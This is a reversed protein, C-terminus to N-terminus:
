SRSSPPLPLEFWFCAGGGRRNYAGVRGGHAEIISKVIALGLGLGDKGSTIASEARHFPRFLPDAGGPPLGPGRDAVSVRVFDGRQSLSVDIDTDRPAYKNANLVLNVLAQGVRRSDAAVLASDEAPRLDHVHPRQQRQSLLPEVVLLVEHVVDALQVPQLHLRLRGDRIAAACLLNEILGELWLARCRIAVVMERIQARDLQEFDDVLLEASTALAMLPGRLEHAVASSFGAPLVESSGAVNVIPGILPEDEQQAMGSRGEEREDIPLPRAATEPWRGDVLDVQLAEISLTM